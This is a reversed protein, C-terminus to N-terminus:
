SEEERVFALKPEREVTGLLPLSPKTTHGLKPGATVQKSQGSHQKTNRTRQCQRTVSRAPGESAFERALRLCM